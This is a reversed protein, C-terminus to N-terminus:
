PKRKSEGGECPDSSNSRPASGGDAEDAAGEGPAADKTEEAAPQKVSAPAPAKKACGALMAIVFLILAGRM